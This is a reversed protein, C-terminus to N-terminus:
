RPEALSGGDADSSVEEGYEALDESAATVEEREFSTDARPAGPQSRDVVVLFCEDSRRVRFDVRLGVGEPGVKDLSELDVGNVQMQKVDGGRCRNQPDRVVLLDGIKIAVDKSVFCAIRNNYVKFPRGPAVGKRSGLLSLWHSKVVQYLCKGLAEFYDIYINLIDRSLIASPTGHAVDNRIDALDNLIFFPDTAFGVREVFERLSAETGVAGTLDYVGIRRFYENLNRDRFNASHYLFAAQNLRYPKEGSLCSHLNGIIEQLSLQGRFRSYELRPILDLSLSAHSGTLDNPLDVYNEVLPVVNHLHSIVLSEVYTEFLGSLSIIVSNFDFRRRGQNELIEKQLGL